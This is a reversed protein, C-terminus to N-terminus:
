LLVHYNGRGLVILDLLFLALESALPLVRYNTNRGPGGRINDQNGRGSKTVPKALERHAGLLHTSQQTTLRALANPMLAREVHVTDGFPEETTGKKKINLGWTGLETKFLVKANYVVVSSVIILRSLPDKVKGIGGEGQERPV